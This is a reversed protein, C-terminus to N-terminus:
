NEVSSPFCYFKQWSLFSLVLGKKKQPNITCCSVFSLVEVVTTVPITCTTHTHTRTQYILCCGCVSTMNKWSSLVKWMKRKKDFLTCSCFVFNIIRQFVSSYFNVCESEKEM